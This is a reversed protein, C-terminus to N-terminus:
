SASGAPVAMNISYEAEPTTRAEMEREIVEVWDAIRERSWDRDDNLYTIIYDLRSRVAGISPSPTFTVYSTILPFTKELNIPAGPGAAELAAGMACSGLESTHDVTGFYGGKYQPRLMAGLRIAESLKLSM